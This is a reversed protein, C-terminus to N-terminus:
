CYNQSVCREASTGCLYRFLKAGEASALPAASWVAAPVARSILFSTLFPLATYMRQLGAVLLSKELPFQACFDFPLSSQQPSPASIHYTNLSSSFDDL